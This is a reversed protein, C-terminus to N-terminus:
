GRLRVIERRTHDDIYEFWEVLTLPGLDHHPVVAQQDAGSRALERALGISEERTRAFAEQLDELSSGEPLRYSHYPELVTPPDQWRRVRALSWREIGVWHNLAERNGPTDSAALMRPLLRDRSAELQEALQELTKGRARRRVRPRLLAGIVKQVFSM